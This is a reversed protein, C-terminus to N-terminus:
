YIQHGCKPCNHAGAPLAAGCATCFATAVPEEEVVVTPGSSGQGQPGGGAKIVERQAELDTVERDLQEIHIFRDSLQAPLEQGDRHLQWVTRGIEQYLKDQENRKGVIETTLRGIRIAKDAETTARNVGDEVTKTLKNLWSM